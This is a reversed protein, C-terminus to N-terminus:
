SAARPMKRIFSRLRGVISETDCEGKDKRCSVDPDFREVGEEGCWDGVSAEDAAGGEKSTKPVMVIPVGGCDKETAMSVALLLKSIVELL